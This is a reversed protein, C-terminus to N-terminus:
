SQDWAVAVAENFGLEYDVWAHYTFDITSTRPSIERYKQIGTNIGFVLNKSSTALYTGDPMHASKKLRYGMFSDANAKLLVLYAGESTAIEQQYTEYASPSLYFTFDQTKYKSPISQLMAKFLTVLNEYDSTDFTHTGSGNKALHVWGENLHTFDTVTGSDDAVGVCGLYDFDAQFGEMFENAQETEFRPNDKNQFIADFDIGAYLSVKKLYLEKGVNANSVLSTSDPSSGAPVRVLKGRLWGYMNLPQILKKTKIVTVDKIIEAKQLQLIFNRALAPALEGGVERTTSSIIAKSIGEHGSKSVSELVDKIDVLGALDNKEVSQGLPHTHVEMSKKGWISTQNLEELEKNLKSLNENLEKESGSKEVLLEMEKMASQAKALQENERNPYKGFYEKTKNLLDSCKKYLSNSDEQKAVKKAYGGMSFSRYKTKVMEWLADDKVKVGVVWAGPKADNYFAGEAATKIIHSEVVAAKEQINSHEKDINYQRANFMFDHAAKELTAASAYEGHADITEPQYVVGYAIRKEEDTKSIEFLAGFNTERSDATKCIYEM